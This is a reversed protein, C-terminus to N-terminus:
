NGKYFIVDGTPCDTMGRVIRITGAKELGLVADTFDEAVYRECLGKDHLAQVLSDISLPKDRVCQVIEDRLTV